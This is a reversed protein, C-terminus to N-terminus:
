PAGESGRSDLYSQLIRQAALGDVREARARRSLGASRMIADAEATTLREDWLVVPLGLVRRLSEAFGRAAGAAPGESGNMNLPLGVVFGCAEHEEAAARLREITEAEAGRGIRGASRAIIGGPDSVAIGIRKEGLDIGLLRAPICGPRTM